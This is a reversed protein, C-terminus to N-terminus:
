LGCTTPQSTTLLATARAAKIPMTAASRWGASALSLCDSSALVTPRLTRRAWAASSSIACNSRTQFRSRRPSQRRNTNPQWGPQTTGYLYTTVQNTANVAMLTALGGDPAYAVFRVMGTHGKLAAREKKMELDWLKVTMDESASAVTKGLSDDVIQVFVHRSSRSVVLRPRLSTGHVKKRVRDHRRGRAASKSKARKIILAM